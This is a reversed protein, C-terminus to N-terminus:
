YVLFGKFYWKNSYDIHMNKVHDKLDGTYAVKVGNSEVVTDSGFIHEDLAVGLRTGAWGARCLAIRLKVDEPNDRKAAFEKFKAAAADSVKIM